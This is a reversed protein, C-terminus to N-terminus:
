PGSRAADVPCERQGVIRTRLAWGLAAIGAVVLLPQLPAFWTMAGASGLAILVLKNCVPCGVAFFTLLGGAIGHRRGDDRGEIQSNASRPDRVNSGAPM